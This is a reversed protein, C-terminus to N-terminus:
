SLKSLNDTATIEVNHVKAVSGSQQDFTIAPRTKDLYYVGSWTATNGARDSACLYLTGTGETSYTIM